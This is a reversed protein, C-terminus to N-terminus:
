RGSVMAPTTGTFAVVDRHLHPQDVYGCAIATEAVPAGGVLREFAHRFRVIMAARKPSTGIQRGFRTRLRRPSWGTLETLDAVTARGATHLIHNWSAVVEPDPGRPAARDLLFGNVLAFRSAWDPAEALQHRLQLAHPGWVVDTDVLGGTLEHPPIGLVPYALLPSIRVEVCDVRDCRVSQVGPAIGAILGGTHGGDVEFCGDGAQLVISASPMAVIRM